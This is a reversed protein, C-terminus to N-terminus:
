ARRRDVSRAALAAIRAALRRRHFQRKRHHCAKASRAARLRDFLAVARAVQSGSRLEGPRSRIGRAVSDDDRPFLALGEIAELAHRYSTLAPPVYVALPRVAPLALWARNDAALSDFGRPTFRAELLVPKGGSVKFVL